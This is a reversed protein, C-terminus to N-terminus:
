PRPPLVSYGPRGSSLAGCGVGLVWGVWNVWSGGGPELGGGGCVFGWGGLGFGCLVKTITGRVKGGMMGVSWLLATGQVDIEVTGLHGM